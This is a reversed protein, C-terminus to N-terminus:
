EEVEIQLRVFRKPAIMATGAAAADFGAWGAADALVARQIRRLANRVLGNFVLPGDRVREPQLQLIPDETAINALLNTGPVTERV